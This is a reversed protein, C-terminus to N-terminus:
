PSPVGTNGFVTDTSMKQEVEDEIGKFFAECDKLATANVEKLEILMSAAQKEIETLASGIDGIHSKHRVVETDPLSDDVETPPYAEFYDPQPATRVKLNNTRYINLLTHCAQRLESTHREYESLLAEAKASNSAFEGNERRAADAYNNLVDRSHDVVGNLEDRLELKANQYEFDAEHVLRDIQGYGPYRDDAFYAKLAASISFIIGVFLLVAADFDNIALPNDILSELAKVIATVPDIGLQARYHATALNFFVMFTLYIMMGGAALLRRSQSVHQFNRFIYMGALLAAGINVLSIIMAQLGGGLLGLDSGGAFFFSNAVSELLILAVVIAWHLINSEPYDAIRHINNAERFYARERMMEGNYRMLSMLRDHFKGRTREVQMETDIKLNGVASSTSSLDVGSLKATLRNLEEEGQHRAENLREDVFGLITRQHDDLSVDSRAPKDRRGEEIAHRTVDLEQEMAFVDVRPFHDM